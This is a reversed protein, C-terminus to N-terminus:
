FGGARGYLGPTRFVTRGGRAPLLPPVKLRVRQIATTRVVTSAIDAVVAMAAACPPSSFGSAVSTPMVSSSIRMATIASTSFGSAGPRNWPAGLPTSPQALFMLLFPPSAPRSTTTSKMSECREASSERFAKM